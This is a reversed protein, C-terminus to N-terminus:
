VKRPIESYGMIIGFSNSKMNEGLANESGMGLTDEWQGM